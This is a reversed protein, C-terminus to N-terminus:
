VIIVHVKCDYTCCWALWKSDKCCYCLGLTAFTCYFHAKFAEPESLKSGDKRLNNKKERDKPEVHRKCRCNLAWRTIAGTIAEHKGGRFQEANLALALPSGHQGLARGSSWSCKWTSVLKQVSFERNTLVKNAGELRGREMRPLGTCTPSWRHLWCRQIHREFAGRCEQTCRPTRSTVSFGALPLLWGIPRFPTKDTSRCDGPM